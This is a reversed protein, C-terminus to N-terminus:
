RDGAARRVPWGRRRGDSGAPRHSRMYRSHRGAPRRVEIGAALTHHGGRRGWCLIQGPEDSEDGRNRKGVVSTLYGQINNM